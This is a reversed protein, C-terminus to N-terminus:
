PSGKLSFTSSRAAIRSPDNAHKMAEWLTCVGQNTSSSVLLVPTANPTIVDLSTRMQAATQEAGPIDAKHVVVIDAIELIGAKEWQFEDGTHPQVLVVVVDVLSKVAVDGQGTGVTEVLLVDFGFRALLGLMLDLHPAVGGNGGPTALSRVFIGSDTAAGMRFADGLLAGGTIPSEPDCALVAVSKGSARITELLRGVLTSKGVGASGTIAYIPPKPQITGVLSRITDLSEGRATLTLLQSLARRDGRCFRHGLDDLM